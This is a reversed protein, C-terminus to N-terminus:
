PRKADPKYALEPPLGALTLAASTFNIDKAHKIWKYAPGELAASLFAAVTSDEFGNGPLLSM